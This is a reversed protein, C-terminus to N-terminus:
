RGRGRGLGRGDAAIAQPVIQHALAVTGPVRHVAHPASQVIVHVPREVGVQVDRVPQLEGPVAVVVLRHTGAVVRGPRVPLGSRGFEGYTTTKKKKNQKRKKPFNKLATRKTFMGGFGKAAVSTHKRDKLRFLFLVSLRNPVLAARTVCPARTVQTQQDETVLLRPNHHPSVKLCSRWSGDKNIKCHKWRKKMESLVQEAHVVVIVINAFSEPVGTAGRRSVEGNCFCFLLAVCLGQGSAVVASTVQYVPEWSTGPEPRFPTVIYQLGLLPILILTARVAKGTRSSSAPVKDYSDV